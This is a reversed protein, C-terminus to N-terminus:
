YRKKSPPITVMKKKSLSQLNAIFLFLCSFFFLLGAFFLVQNAGFYNGIIGATLMGIVLGIREAIIKFSLIKGLIENQINEQIFTRSGTTYLSEGIGEFILFPLVFILTTQLSFGILSISFVFIGIFFILLSKKNKIFYLWMSGIIAGIGSLSIIIGYYSTNIRLIKSLFVIELIGIVGIAFNAFLGGFLVIKIDKNNIFIKLSNIFDKLQNKTSIHLEGNNIFKYSVFLVLFSFIFYSIADIIFVYEIKYFRIILSVLLPGLIMALMEEFTIFSNIKLLWKKKTLFPIFSHLAPLFLAELIANLFTIIYIIKVNLFFIFSLVFIGKFLSTYFLIKKKNYSDVIIGGLISFLIFPISRIILLYCISLPSGTQNYVIIMLAVLSLWSGINSVFDGLLLIYLKNYFFFSLSSRKRIM